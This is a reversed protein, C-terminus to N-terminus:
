RAFRVRDLELWRAMRELDDQLHARVQTRKVGPEYHVAHVMLVGARRDAKLDVRAALLDGLLYPLV